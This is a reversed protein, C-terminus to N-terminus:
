YPDFHYGAKSIWTDYSECRGHVPISDLDIRLFFQAHPLDCGGLDISHGFYEDVLNVWRSFFYDTKPPFSTSKRMSKRLSNYRLSVHSRNIKQFGLCLKSVSVSKTLDLVWRSINRQDMELFSVMYENGGRLFDASIEFKTSCSKYIRM